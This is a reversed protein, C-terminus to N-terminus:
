DLGDHDTSSTGLVEPSAALRYRQGLAWDDGFCEIASTSIAAFAEKADQPRDMPSEALLLEVLTAIPAAVDPATECLPKPLQAGRAFADRWSRLRSGPLGGVLLVHLILGIGWVDTWPGVSGSRLQEPACYAITSLPLKRDWKKPDYAHGFDMVKPIGSVTFGVNRPKIDMHILGQSHVASVGSAAAAAVVTAAQAPWPDGTFNDSLSRDGLLELILFSEDDIKRHEILEVVHPHRLSELIEGEHNLAWRAGDAQPALGLNFKVAVDLEAPTPQKTPTDYREIMSKHLSTGVRPRANMVVGGGGSGLLTGPIVDPLSERLITSGQEQLEADSLRSLNEQARDGSTM